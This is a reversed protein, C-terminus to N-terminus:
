RAPTAPRVAARSGLRLRHGPGPGGPARYWRIRCPAEAHRTPDLSAADLVQSGHVAEETRVQAAAETAASAEQLATLAVAAPEAKLKRLKAQQTPSVAQALLQSIQTNVSNANLQDIQQSLSASMLTLAATAVNARFRLFETAVANAHNVAARSTPASATIDIIRDTVATVTYSKLFGSVSQQLGLKKLALEAVTRSDAMAVENAIPSGSPEGSVSEPTMLLSTTAKYPVPLAVFLCLGILLGAAAIAGWLRATRRLTARIFGLSTLGTTLDTTGDDLYAYDDAGPREALHDGDYMSFM